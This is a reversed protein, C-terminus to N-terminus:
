FSPSVLMVFMFAPIPSPMQRKPSLLVCASRSVVGLVVGSVFTTLEPLWCCMSSLHSFLGNQSPILFFSVSVCILLIFHPGEVLVLATGTYSCSCFFCLLVDLFPFMFSTKSMNSFRSVYPDQPLANWMMIPTLTHYASMVACTGDYLCIFLFLRNHDEAKAGLLFEKPLPYNLCAAAILATQRHKSVRRATSCERALLILGEM